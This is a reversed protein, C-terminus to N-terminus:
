GRSKRFALVALLLGLGAFSNCGGGGGGSNDNSNNNTTPTNNSAPPTYTPTDTTPSNNITPTDTTPATGGSTVSVMLTKSAMNEYSDTVTVTFTFTGTETPTGCPVLGNAASIAESYPVNLTPSSFSGYIEPNTVDPNGLITISFTKTTREGSSSGAILTSTFTGAKTPTGELWCTNLNPNLRLGDPLSGEVIDWLYSAVGEARAEGSLISYPEGVKHNDFGGTISLAFACSAVAALMFALM